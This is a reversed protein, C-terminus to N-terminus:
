GIYLLGFMILVYLVCLSFLIRDHLLVEVPDGDSNGEIALSYKMTILMVLPSTFVVARGGYAAVTAADMSWLAYFANALTLCMYMNKDLFAVSYHKLVTRTNEGGGRILENRRKGFAFYFSVAIVTLYLWSSVTVGTLVAGYLIRILFGSVLVTVDLLPVHKWGKSYGVNLLFYLLLLATSAIHPILLNLGLALVLLAAFLFWASRVSVKGSAIPRHCKVPHAADKEKDQIDNCVYVASSIFCFAFFGIVAPILRAMDFLQGSCALAAFILLNKVYHHVRMLKLYDKM